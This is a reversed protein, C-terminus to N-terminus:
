ITCRILLRVQLDIRESYLITLGDLGIDFMHGAVGASASRCCHVPKSTPSIILSEAQPPVHFRSSTVQACICASVMDKSGPSAHAWGALQPGGCLSEFSIIVVCTVAAACILSTDRCERGIITSSQM